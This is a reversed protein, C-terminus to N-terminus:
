ARLKSNDTGGYIYNQWVTTYKIILAIIPLKIKVKVKINTM